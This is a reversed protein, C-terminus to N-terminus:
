PEIGAERVFDETGIVVASRDRAPHSPEYTCISALGYELPGRESVHTAPDAIAIVEDCYGVGSTHGILVSADPDLTSLVAIMNRAASSVFSRLASSAAIVM